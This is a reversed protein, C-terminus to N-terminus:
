AVRGNSVYLISRVNEPGMEELAELWRAAEPSNWKSGEYPFRDSM